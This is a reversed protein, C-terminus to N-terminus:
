CLRRTAAASPGWPDRLDTEGGLGLARAMSARVDPDDRCLGGVFDLTVGAAGEFSWSCDQLANDVLHAPRGDFVLQCAVFVCREYGEEGLMIRECEFRRGVIM